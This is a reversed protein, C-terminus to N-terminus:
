VICVHHIVIEIPNALFETFHPASGSCDFRPGNAAVLQCLGGTLDGRRDITEPPHEFIHLAIEPTRSSILLVRAAALLIAFCRLQL